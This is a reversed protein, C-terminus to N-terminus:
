NKAQFVFIASNRQSFIMFVVSLSSQPSTKMLRQHRISVAVVKTFSYPDHDSLFGKWLEKISSSSPMYIIECAQQNQLYHSPIGDRKVIRVIYCRAANVLEADIRNKVNEKSRGRGDIGIAPVSVTESDAKQYQGTMRKTLNSLKVSGLSFVNMFAVRCIPIPVGDVGPMAFSFKFSGSRYKSVTIMASLAGDCTM